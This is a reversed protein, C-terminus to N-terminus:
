INVRFGALIWRGPMEVSGQEMYTEDTLNSGQVFLEYRGGRMPRAARADLRLYRDQGNRENVSLSTSWRVPWHGRSEARLTLRHKLFDFVYASVGAPEDGSSDLHAYAATMRIGGRGSRRNWTASATLEAGTTEVRRLNVARFLTDGPAQVFDILDSGARRFLTASFRHGRRVRDFGVEWTWSHEPSLDVNGVTAPSRYHLETFSPLRYASAVSARLTGAGLDWSLAANPHVEWDRDALDAALATRWRLRGSGGVLSSSLGWRDRDRLGLNSSDLSEGIRGFGIRLEGAPTTRDVTVQLDLTDDRHINTLLGPDYRDLIFEDEHRRYGARASIRSGGRTGSWDLSLFRARTFELQDPFRTTYFSEAGFDRRSAGAAFGLSGISGRYWGAAADFETGDRCGASEGRELSLRHGGAGPLNGALDVSGGSLSNQGAYAEFRASTERSRKTLINVVGGSANAGHLASGPGYLVEVREIASVPVPIDLTHHGTQPNNVPVGDLLVLVQEFSSGRISLDAQMGHVGRRRVDLGPFLQLLEPVARVGHAEIEESTLVEVHRGSRGHPVPIRTATVTVTEEFGGTEEEPVDAFITLTLLFALAGATTSM